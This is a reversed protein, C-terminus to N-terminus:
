VGMRRLERLEYDVMALMAERKILAYMERQEIEALASDASKLMEAEYPSLTRTPTGRFSRTKASLTSTASKMGWLVPSYELLQVGTLERMTETGARTREMKFDHATVNYGISWENAAGAKLREFIDAGEPTKLLFRTRALL